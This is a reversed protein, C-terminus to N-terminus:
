FSLSTTLVKLRDLLDRNIRNLDEVEATQQNTRQIIAKLDDLKAQLDEVIDSPDVETVSDNAPHGAKLSRVKELLAVATRVFLLIIIIM